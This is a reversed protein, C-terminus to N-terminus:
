AELEAEQEAEQEAEKEAEQRAGQGGRRRRSRGGEAGKPRQGPTKCRDLTQPDPRPHRSALLISAPMGRGERPVRLPRAAGRGYPVGRGNGGDVSRAVVGLLHSAVHGHPAVM